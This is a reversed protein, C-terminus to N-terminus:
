RGNRREERLWFNRRQARPLEGWVAWVVDRIGDVAAEATRRQNRWLASARVFDLGDFILRQRPTGYTGVLRRSGSPYDPPEWGAARHGRYGPRLKIRPRSM